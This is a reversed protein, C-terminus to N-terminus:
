CIMGSRQSNDVCRDTMWLDWRPDPLGAVWRGSHSWSLRGVSWVSCSAAGYLSSPPPPVPPWRGATDPLRRPRARPGYPRPRRSAKLPPACVPSWRPRPGVITRAGPRFAPRRVAIGAAAAATAPRAGRRQGRRAAPVARAHPRLPCRRTRRDPPRDHHPSRPAHRRAACSTHASGASRVALGSPRPRRGAPCDRGPVDRSRGRM